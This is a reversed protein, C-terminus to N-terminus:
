GTSRHDRALSPHILLGGLGRRRLSVRGEDGDAWRSLREVLEVDIIPPQTELRSEEGSNGLGEQCDDEKAHLEADVSVPAIAADTTAADLDRRLDSPLEVDTALLQKITELLHLPLTVLTSVATTEGM